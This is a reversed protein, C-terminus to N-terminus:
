VRRRGFGWAAGGILVVLLVASAVVLVPNEQFSFVNGTEPMIPKHSATPQMDPPPQMGPQQQRGPMPQKDPSWKGSPPLPGVLSVADVDYNGEVADPWKKVGRIFLTLNPGKTQITTSYDDIRTPDTRQQEEWPLTVWEIDPSQWDTGGMYDIGYQMEFGYDSAEASGSDSRVMGHLTLGYESNPSVHTRQFIGVYRDMEHADRLELLQAHEGDYVVKEWTDDYWGAHVNGNQFREWDVAVGV